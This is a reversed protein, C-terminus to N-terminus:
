SLERVALAEPVHAGTLHEYASLRRRAPLNRANLVSKSAAPPAWVPATARPALRPGTPKMAARSPLRRRDPRVRARDRRCRSSSEGACPRGPPRADGVAAHKSWGCRSPHGESPYVAGTLWYGYGGSDHPAAGCVRHESPPARSLQADRCLADSGHAIKLPRAEHPTRAELLTVRGGERGNRPTATKAVV